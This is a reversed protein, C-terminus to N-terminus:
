KVDKELENVKSVLGALLNAVYNDLGHKLLLAVLAERTIPDHEHCPCDPEGCHPDRGIYCGCRPCELYSM